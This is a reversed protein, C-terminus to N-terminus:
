LDFALQGDTSKMVTARDLLWEPLNELAVRITPDLKRTADAANQDILSSQRQRHWLAFDVLIVGLLTSMGLRRAKPIIIRKRGEGHIARIVAVQEPRPVFAQLGSGDAPAIKYLEGSTLRWVPDALHQELQATDETTM